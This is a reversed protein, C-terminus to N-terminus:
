RSFVYSRVQILTGRKLGQQVAESDWYTEYAQTCLNWHKM